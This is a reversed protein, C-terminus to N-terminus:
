DWPLGIVPWTSRDSRLLLKFVCLTTFQNGLCIALKTKHATRRMRPPPCEDGCRRANQRFGTTRQAVNLFKSPMSRDCGCFPVNFAISYSLPSQDLQESRCSPLPRDSFSGM